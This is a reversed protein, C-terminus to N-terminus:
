NVYKDIESENKKGTGTGDGIDVFKSNKILDISPSMSTFHEDYTMRNMKNTLSKKSSTKSKSDKKFMFVVEM